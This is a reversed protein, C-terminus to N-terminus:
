KKNIMNESGQTIILTHSTLKRQISIWKVLPELTVRWLHRLWCCQFASDRTGESDCVPQTVVEAM